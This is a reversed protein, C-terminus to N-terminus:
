AILIEPLVKMLNDESIHINASWNLNDKPTYAINRQAKLMISKDNFQDGVFV